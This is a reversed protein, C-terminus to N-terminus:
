ESKYLIKKNRLYKNFKRESIELFTIVSNKYDAPDSPMSLRLILRFRKGDEEYENLIVATAPSNDELIYQPNQIIDKLYNEYREFDGPHRQKIHALREDTIIVEDTRIHPSVVSFKQIDIQGIFQVGRGGGQRTKRKRNM